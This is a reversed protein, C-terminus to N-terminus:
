YRQFSLMLEQQNRFNFAEQGDILDCNIYLVNSLTEGIANLITTKGTRRAGYLILARQKHMYSQLKSQITRVIM